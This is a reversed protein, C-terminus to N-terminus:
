NPSPLLKEKSCTFWDLVIKENPYVELEVVKVTLFSVTAPFSEQELDELSIKTFVPHTFAKYNKLYHVIHLLCYCLSHLFHTFILRQAGNKWVIGAFSQSIGRVRSFKFVSSCNNFDVM